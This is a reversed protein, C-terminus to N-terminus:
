IRIKWARVVRQDIEVFNGVVTSPIPAPPYKQCSGQLGELNNLKWRTECNGCALETGELRFTTSNCPECLRIATVLKGEPSIYALLPITRNDAAYDFSVIKYQQLASLPFRLKGDQEQIAIATPTLTVDTYNSAMAVDPQTAIVPNAGGPLHDLFLLLFAVCLVVVISGYLAKARRSMPHRTPPPTPSRMQLPALTQPVSLASGCSACFRAGVAVPAGCASCKAANM